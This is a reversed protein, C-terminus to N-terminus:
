VKIFKKFLDTIKPSLYKVEGYAFLSMVSLSILPFIFSPIFPFIRALDVILSVGANEHVLYLPYSITGFFIFLSNGMMKKIIESLILGIFLVLCIVEAVIIDIPQKNIAFIIGGLILLAISVKHEQLKGLMYEYCFMGVLFWFLYRGLLVDYFLFELIKPHAIIELLLTVFCIITLFWIAKKRDFLYYLFGFIFYFRFEVYLSWFAGELSAFPIKTVKELWYPDILLLGPISNIIKPEGIPRSSFLKYTILVFITVILMSPFLRIWRKKMFLIFNTTKDLTMFIVLGSIMFFLQVGFSGYKFLPFEAFTSHYPYLDTWRSLYHFFVVLLISVGRLGDLEKIRM